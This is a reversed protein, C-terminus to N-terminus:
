QTSSANEVIALALVEAARKWQYKEEIAKKVKDLNDGNGEILQKIATEFAEKNRPDVHYKFFSFDSMATVSSCIVNLNNMAAELPPIGFGEALSPYAFFEANVYFQQLDEDSINKFQHLHNQFEESHLALFADMEPYNLDYAGIFVLQYGGENLKLNVFAQLLALHNKRPEIRSVYLIYRECGYKTKVYDSKEITNEATNVANPTVVINGPNVQYLEEIKQKSYESVTTVIAAKRASRKFLSGNILRYKLPFYQRFRPEEFLIDHTTVIYKCASVFPSIYQFHAYDAKVKKIIRPLEVLLRWYKNSSQLPVYEVHPHQGFEKQLHKVDQAVMIFTWDPKQIILSNYLGKLFTRSGQFKEDFVHADIIIRM